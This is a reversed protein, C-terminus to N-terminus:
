LRKLDREIKDLNYDSDSKFKNVVLFSVTILGFLISSVIIITSFVNESDGTGSTLSGSFEVSSIFSYVVDSDSILIPLSYILNEKSVHYTIRKTEGPELSDILWEGRNLWQHSLSHYENSDDKLFLNEVRVNGRNKISIMVEVNKEHFIFYKKVSIFSKDSGRQISPIMILPHNKESINSYEYVSPSLIYSDQTKEPKLEVSLKSVSHSDVTSSYSFHNNFLDLSESSSVLSYGTFDQSLSFDEPESKTNIFTFNVIINDNELFHYNRIIRFFGEEEEDGDMIPGSSGSSGGSSDSKISIDSNFNFDFSAISIDPFAWFLEKDLDADFFVDLLYDKNPCIKPDQEFFSVSSDNLTGNQMKNYLLESYMLSLNREKAVRYFEEFSKNSNFYVKQQSDTENALDKEFPASSDSPDLNVIELTRVELLFPSPNEFELSVLRKQDESEEDVGHFNLRPVFNTLASPSYLDNELDLINYLFPKGDGFNFDSNKVNGVIQYNITKSSHGEIRFIKFSNSLYNFDESFININSERLVPLDFLYISINSPNTVKIEGKTNIVSSDSGKDIEGEEYISVELSDYVDCNSYKEYAFVNPSLFLVLFIFSSFVVWGRIQNHLFSKAVM